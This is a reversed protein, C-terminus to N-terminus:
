GHEGLLTRAAARRAVRPPPTGDRLAEIALRIMRTVERHAASRSMGQTAERLDSLRLPPGIRVTLKKRKRPDPVQKLVDVLTTYQQQDM